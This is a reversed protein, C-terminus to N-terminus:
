VTNYTESSTSIGSDATNRREASSPGTFNQCTTVVGRTMADSSSLKPAESSAANILATNPKMMAQASVRSRNGPRRSNSAMMSRGRANGVATAPM